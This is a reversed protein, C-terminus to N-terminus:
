TGRWRWFGNKELVRRSAANDSAVGGALSRISPQARCWRILGGVIETAFGMGWGADALLYGLRVEMGVEPPTEFLIVLGMPWGSVKETVSLTAGEM